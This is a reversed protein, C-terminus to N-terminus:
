DFSVNMLRTKARADNFRLGRVRVLFPHGGDREEGRWNIGSNDSCSKSDSESGEGRTVREAKGNEMSSAKSMSL